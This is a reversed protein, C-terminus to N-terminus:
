VNKLIKLKAADPSVTGADAKGKTIFPKSEDPTRSEYSVTFFKNERVPVLRLGNHNQLQILESRM